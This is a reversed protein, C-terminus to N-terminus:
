PKRGLQYNDTEKGLLLDGQKSFIYIMFRVSETGPRFLFDASTPRLRSVSFPEGSSFEVGTTLQENAGTPYVALGAKSLMFVLIHGTVKTDPSNSILQFKLSLKNTAQELNIQELRVRNQAVLDQMGVPRKVVMLLPSTQGQSPQETSARSLRQTLENINKQLSQIENELAKIKGRSETKSESKATLLKVSPTVKFRNGLGWV